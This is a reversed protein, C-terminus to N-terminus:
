LTIDGPTTQNPTVTITKSATAAGSKVSLEWAGATVGTLTFNGASDTTTEYLGRNISVTAGQVAQSQNNVVRGLVAGAGPDTGINIRYHGAQKSLRGATDISVVHLVWVGEPIGSKLVQKQSAPVATDAASPVTTGFQDLVYYAGAVNEDGQPYSWSFFPNTNSTFTTQGPHSSSTVSPGSTNIQLPFVTEVTGIASQADVSVVHVYNAGDLVDNPSFSVKDVAQFEADAATPPDLPATDLRVYYGQLTPFAKSWSVDLSLFGDNYIKTPDPHSQSRLPIPPALGKTLRGVVAGEAVEVKSGHLIKVRGDGGVGGFLPLGCNPNTPGGLGGASSISGSVTIDDGALLIGGGSGGGGGIACSQTNSGGNAGNATIQGAISIKTALLKVVGGGTAPAPAPNVFMKGGASGAQVDSDTDSGWPRVTGYGGGGPTCNSCTADTGKGFISAGTPAMSISGGTEVTISDATIALNGTTSSLTAGARVTVAGAVLISGELSMDSTVDLGDLACLGDQCFTACTELTDWRTGEANCQQANNGNCRLAGPACPGDDPLLQEGDTGADTGPNDANGGCAGFALM